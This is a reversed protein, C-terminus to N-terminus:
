STVSCGWGDYDGGLEQLKAVLPLVLDDIAAPPDIRHFGLAWEARGPEPKLTQAIAFGEARVHAAFVDLATRDAFFAQHDIQRRVSLDDGTKQLQECVRRNLIRQMDQPRPLLFDFYTSWGPDPRAGVDFEYEAFPAMAARMGAEFRQPDRTYFYHDRNGSSTNRGVFVADGFDRCQALLADEIAVLRAFEDQSSQGDARPHLMYVRVYGMVPWQVLPAEHRLGLDVFISAPDGDVRMPYFDWDDSM